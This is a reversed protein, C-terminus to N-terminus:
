CRNNNCTTHIPLTNTLLEQNFELRDRFLLQEMQRLLIPKLLELLRHNLLEEKSNPRSCRLRTCRSINSFLLQTLPM